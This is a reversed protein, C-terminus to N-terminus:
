WWNGSTGDKFWGIKVISQTGGMVSYASFRGGIYISSNTQVFAGCTLNYCGGRGYDDPTFYIFLRANWDGYLDPYKQWGAEVTELSSGSGRLVWIPMGLDARHTRRSKRLPWRCTRTLWRFRPRSSSSM